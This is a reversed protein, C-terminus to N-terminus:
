FQYRLQFVVPLIQGHLHFTVADGRESVIWDQKELILSVAQKNKM